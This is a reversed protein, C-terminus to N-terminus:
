KQCALAIWDGMSKKQVVRFGNEDAAEFVAQSQTELIGSLILMGDAEVLESLGAKFLRIIVPALINVAVLDARQIPYLGERIEKISGVEFTLGENIGNAFSNHRANDISDPDIDVGLTYNAGLKMAAISLIGSGCGLDLFSSATNKRRHLDAYFEEMFMLCLQTSPHTGTGFAMGPEIKISIRDPQTSELWAPLILLRDGIPIPKYHVKWADMWNQDAITKYVPEPLTQIMGLYYLSTELAQRKEELRDDVPLYARVTVPGDAIGVDEDNAYRIGQETMVGGPAVRALVDAVAEALEGNVKLSVELWGSQNM